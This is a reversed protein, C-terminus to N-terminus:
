NGCIGTSRTSSFDMAMNTGTMAGLIRRATPSFKSTNRAPITDGSAAKLRSGKILRHTRHELKGPCSGGCRGYLWGDPGWKLGNAFNHHNAKAVKFGDLVTVAPGDPQDDQNADPIFLLKPPCMLWVGGHGVEVSTLMQVQDTFVTRKDAVGDQDSDEFILVRDRLSLDFRQSKEAYTFNEAVWLRSKSDWTMAIPNQVDPEKAFVKVELNDPLEFGAAAERAPMPEAAVDKESNYVEPFEQGAADTFLLCSTFVLAQLFVLFAVNFIRSM